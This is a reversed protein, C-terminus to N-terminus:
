NSNLLDIALGIARLMSKPNAKNKLYLDDGTGHDVSTRVFPLGLSAQAGDFGHILKFPILAQDHYNAILFSYKKYTELSFFSDAPLPGSVLDAHEDVFPKHVTEDIQGILGGEGAHPNLGLLAIKKPMYKEKPLKKLVVLAKNLLSKFDLNSVKDIPMHDSLLLSNYVDGFFTMFCPESFQKRLYDTHGVSGSKSFSSKRLPGTVLASLKNNTSCFKVSNEFWSFASSNTEIWYFGPDLNLSLSSCVILKLDTIKLNKLHIDLDKKSAFFVFTKDQYLKLTSISSLAKLTVELGIGDIEGPTIVITQNM